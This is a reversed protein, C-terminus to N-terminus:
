KETPLAPTDDEDHDDDSANNKSLQVNQGHVKQIHKLLGNKTAFSKECQPCPFHTQGKHGKQHYTLCKNYIFIKGCIICPYMQGITTNMQHQRLLNNSYFIQGCELCPFEKPEHTKMHLLLSEKYAFQFDCDPCQYNKAFDRHTYSPRYASKPDSPSKTYPSTHIKKHINLNKKQPFSKGCVACSFSQPLKVPTFRPITVGLSNTKEPSSFFEENRTKQETPLDPLSQSSAPPGFSLKNSGGEADKVQTQCSAEFFKQLIQKKAAALPEIATERPIDILHSYKNKLIANHFDKRGELFEWEDASFIGPSGEYHLPLKGSLFQTIQNNVERIKESNDQIPPLIQSMMSRKRGVLTESRDQGFIQENSTQKVLMYQEGTLLYILYISRNIIKKSLNDLDYDM